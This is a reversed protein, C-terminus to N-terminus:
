GAAGSSTKKMLHEEARPFADLNKIAQWRERKSM